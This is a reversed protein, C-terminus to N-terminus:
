KEGLKELKMRTEATEKISLSKKYSAVANAKDGKAAYLDGLYGYSRFSEPYNKINMKFLDEAQEFHKKELSQYGANIVVNEPPLLSRGDSSTIGYKSTIKAYHATLFSDLKLRLDGFYSAIQYDKFIFHLADYTAIM